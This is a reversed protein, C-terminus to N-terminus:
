ALISSHTATGEELPIKGVWSNFRYRWRRRFQQCTRLWHAVQPLGQGEQARVFLLFTDFSSISVPLLWVMCSWTLSNLNQWRSSNWEPSQKSIVQNYGMISVKPTSSNCLSFMYFSFFLSELALVQLVNANLRQDVNTCLLFLFPFDPVLPVALALPWFAKVLWQHANWVTRQPTMPSNPSLSNSAIM